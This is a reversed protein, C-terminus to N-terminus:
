RDCGTSVRITPDGLRLMGSQDNSDAPDPRAMAVSVRYVAENRTIEVSAVAEDAAVGDCEITTAMGATPVRAETVIRPIADM